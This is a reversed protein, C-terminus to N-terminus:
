ITHGQISRVIFDDHALLRSSARRWIYMGGGLFVGFLCETSFEVRTDNPCEEVMLRAVRQVM